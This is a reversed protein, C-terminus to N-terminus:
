AEEAGFYLRNWDGWEEKPLSFLFRAQLEEIVGGLDMKSWMEVAEPDMEETDMSPDMMSSSSNQNLLSTFTTATSSTNAHADPQKQTRPPNRQAPQKSKNSAKRRTSAAQTLQRQKSERHESAKAAPLLDVV